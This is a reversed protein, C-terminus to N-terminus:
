LIFQAMREPFETRDIADDRFLRMSILLFPSLKDIFFVAKLRFGKAELLLIRSKPEEKSFFFGIYCFRDQLEPFM